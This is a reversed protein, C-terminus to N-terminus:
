WRFFTIFPQGTLLTEHLSNRKRGYIGANCEIKEAGGAKQQAVTQIMGLLKALLEETNSGIQNVSSGKTSTLREPNPKTIRHLRQSYTHSSTRSTDTAAPAGDQNTKSRKSSTNTRSEVTPKEPGPILPNCTISPTTEYTM